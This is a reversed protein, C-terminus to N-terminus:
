TMNSLDCFKEAPLNTFGNMLYNHLTCQECHSNNCSNCKLSKTHDYLSTTITNIQSISDVECISNDPCSYYYGACSYIKGNPALTFESVGAKCSNERLETHAFVNLKQHESENLYDLQEHYLEFDSQEWEGIDSFKLNIRMSFDVIRKIDDSLHRLSIRNVLLICANSHIPAQLSQGNYVPIFECIPNDLFAKDFSDSFVIHLKNKHVRDLLAYPNGIFVPILHEKEAYCLGKEMIEKSMTLGQGSGHYHCIPTCNEDVLFYLYKAGDPAWNESEYYEKRKKEHPSITDEVETFRNWFYENARVQAKQMACHFRTRQFITNEKSFLKNEM